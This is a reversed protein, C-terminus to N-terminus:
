PDLGLVAREFRKWNFYFGVALLLCIVLSLGLLLGTIWVTKLIAERKLIVSQYVKEKEGHLLSFLKDLSQDADRMLIQFDEWKGMELAGAALKALEKFRYVGDKMEKSFSSSFTQDGKELGAMLVDLDESSFAAQDPSNMLRHFSTQAKGLLSTMEDIWDAKPDHIEALADISGRIKLLSILSMSGIILTVVLLCLYLRKLNM